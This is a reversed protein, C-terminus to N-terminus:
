KLLGKIAAWTAAVSIIAASIWKATSLVLRGARLNDKIDRTMDTNESMLTELTTFRQEASNRWESAEQQGRPLAALIQGHTPQPEDDGALRISTQDGM